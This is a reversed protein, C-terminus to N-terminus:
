RVGHENMWPGYERDTGEIHKTLWDRLFNLLQVNLTVEGREFRAAFEEVKRTLERHKERHAALGPYRASAMMAEEASFHDRTYALLSRLLTGTAAKANGKM